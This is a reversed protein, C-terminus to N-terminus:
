PCSEWWCPGNIGACVYCLTEGGIECVGDRQAKMVLDVTALRATERAIAEEEPTLPDDPGTSVPVEYYAILGAYTAAWVVMKLKCMFQGTLEQDPLWNDPDYGDGTIPGTDEEDIEMIANYSGKGVGVLNLANIAANGGSPNPNVELGWMEVLLEALEGWDAPPPPPLEDQASGLSSFCFVAVIAVIIIPFKFRM